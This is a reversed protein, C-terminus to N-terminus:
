SSKWSDLSQIEYTESM